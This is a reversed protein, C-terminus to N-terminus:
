KIIEGVSLCNLPILEKRLQLLSLWTKRDTYVHESRFVWRYAPYYSGLSIWTRIGSVRAYAVQSPLPGSGGKGEKKGGRERRRGEGKGGGERGGGRKRERGRMRKKKEETEERIEGEEERKAQLWHKSM